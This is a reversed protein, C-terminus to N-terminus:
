KKMKSLKKEYEEVMKRQMANARKAARIMIETQEKDSLDSWNFVKGTNKEDNPEPKIDNMNNVTTITQYYTIPTKEM